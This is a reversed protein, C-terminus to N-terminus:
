MVAYRFEAQPEVAFYAILVLLAAYWVACALEALRPPLVRLLLAYV